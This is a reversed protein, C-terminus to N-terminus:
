HPGRWDGGNVAVFRREFSKQIGDKLEESEMVYMHAMTKKGADNALEVIRRKYQTPHGEMNDLSELLEPSVHYLEGYISTPLLSEHLQEATVYPYAGSKAGIMYFTQVTHYMGGYEAADLKYNNQFGKRLSGYVFVPTSSSMRPAARVVRRTKRKVKKTKKTKM